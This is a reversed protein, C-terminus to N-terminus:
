WLQISEFCRLSESVITIDLLEAYARETTSTQAHGLLKAVVELRVGRNLLDSGFTRRLTHPTVQSVNRGNLDTATRTRVGARCAVRKVTTWVQAHRMPRGSRTAIFPTDPAGLGVREQHALWIQIPEVLPPFIPITRLGQNTKSRRVVIRRETLDVDSKLLSTVEGGRLGTWRLFPVLVRETPTACADLLAQSESSSLRDNRRQRMRPREIAETPNSALYGYRTLFTFFASLAIIHNRTTRSSPPRGYRQLFEESWRALYVVEIDAATINALPQGGVWRAFHGLYQAYAVQTASSLGRRLQYQRFARLLEELSLEGSV